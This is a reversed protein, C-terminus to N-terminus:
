EVVMRGPHADCQRQDDADGHGAAEDDDGDDPQGRARAAPGRAGADLGHDARRNFCDTITPILADHAEASLQPVSAGRTWQARTLLGADDFDHIQRQPHFRQLILLLRAMLKENGMTTTMNSSTTMLESRMRFSYSRPTINVSPRNVRTLPGPTRRTSGSM